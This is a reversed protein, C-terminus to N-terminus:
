GIMLLKAFYQKSKMCCLDFSPFYNLSFPVLSFSQYPFLLSGTKKFHIPVVRRKVRQAIKALYGDQVKLQLNQFCLSAYPATRVSLLSRCNECPYKFAVIFFFCIAMM